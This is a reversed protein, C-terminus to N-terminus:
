VKSTVHETLGGRGSIVLGALERGADADAYAGRTEDAHRARGHQGRVSRAQVACQRGALNFRQGWGRRRRGQIACQCGAPGCFCRVVNPTRPPPQASAAPCGNVGRDCACCAM